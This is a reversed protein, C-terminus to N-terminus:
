FAAANAFLAKLIGSIFQGTLNNQVKLKQQLTNTASRAANRRNILRIHAAQNGCSLRNPERHRARDDLTM